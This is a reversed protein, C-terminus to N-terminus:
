KNTESNDGEPRPLLESPEDITESQTVNVHYLSTSFSKFPAQLEALNYLQGSFTRDGGATRDTPCGSHIFTVLALPVPFATKYDSFCLGRKLFYIDTCNPFILKFWYASNTRATILFVSSCQYKEKESLAKKVWKSIESFPPNVFNIKGWRVEESLGDFTPNIPCPDFDFRYISDLFNYFDRPTTRIDNKKYYGLSHKEEQKKSEKPM